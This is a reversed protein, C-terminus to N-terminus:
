KYTAEWITTRPSCKRDPVGLLLSSRFTNNEEESTLVDAKISPLRPPGGWLRHGPCRLEWSAEETRSPSQQGVGGM